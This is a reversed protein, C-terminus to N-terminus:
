ANDNNNKREELWYSFRNLLYVVGIIFATVGFIGLLSMGIIPLSEVFVKVNSSMLLKFMM